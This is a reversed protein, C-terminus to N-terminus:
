DHPEIELSYGCARAVPTLVAFLMEQLWVPIGALYIHDRYTHFVLAILLFAPDGKASFWEPRNQTLSAFNMFFRVHQQAPMFEVTFAAASDTANEFHHPVGHKVTASQDAKVLLESGGAFVKIAGATVRFTEDAIPHVHSLANGGGSGAKGLVVEFRAVEAGEPAGSFIFTEANFPNRLVVRQENLVEM